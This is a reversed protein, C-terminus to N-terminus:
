ADLPSSGARQSCAFGVGPDVWSESVEMRVDGVELSTPLLQAVESRQFAQLSAADEFVYIGCVEGTDPDRGLLLQQLGRSERCADTHEQLRSVLWEERLASTLRVCMFVM